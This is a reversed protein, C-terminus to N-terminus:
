IENMDEKIITDKDTMIKTQVTSIWIFVSNLIINFLKKGKIKTKKILIKKSNIVPSVFCYSKIFFNIDNLM